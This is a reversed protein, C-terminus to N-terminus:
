FVIQELAQHNCYLKEPHEHSAQQENKRCKLHYLNRGKEANFRLTRTQEFTEDPKHLSTNLMQIGSAQDLHLVM